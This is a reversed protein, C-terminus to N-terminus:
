RYICASQIVSSQRVHSSAKRFKWEARQVVEIRFLIFIAIQQSADLLPSIAQDILTSGERGGVRPERM